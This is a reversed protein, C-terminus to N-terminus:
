QAALSLKLAALRKRLMDDNLEGTYRMVLRGDAGYFLTTPMASMGARRGFEGKADMMVNSLLLREGGLYRLITERDEEQNVFIFTVDPNSRQAAQLAPIERRCPPCWSAWLNIVLPKGVFERMRVNAGDLGRLAVNPAQARGPAMNLMAVSGGAWITVGAVTGVILPRRAAAGRKTLETGLIVTTFEAAALSFGGDSIDLITLPASFYDDTHRVVFLLRGAVLGGAVVKLVISASDIGGKQWYWWSALFPAALAAGSVAWQGIEMQDM